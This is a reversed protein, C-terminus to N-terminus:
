LRNIGPSVKTKTVVSDWHSLTLEENLEIVNFDSYNGINLDQGGYVYLRAILFSQIQCLLNGQNTYLRLM